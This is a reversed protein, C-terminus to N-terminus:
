KVDATEPAAKRRGRKDKRESCHGRVVPPWQGKKKFIKCAPRGRRIDAKDAQECQDCNSKKFQLTHKQNKSM